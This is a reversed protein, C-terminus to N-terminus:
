DLKLSRRLIRIRQRAQFDQKDSRGQDLAVFKEYSELAEPKKGLKDFCTARVFWFFHPPAERKLLLDQAKLAAEYNEALYFASALDRLADLHEPQLRLAEVLERQAGAFDRKELHLRGLKARAAANHPQAALIGAIAQAAADFKKQRLYIEARLELSELSPTGGADLRDLAAVARDDQQLESFTRALQLRTVADGPQAVLYAELEGAAPGPKQQGLLSQALGLRAHAADPRLELAARFSKEAEAHSGSNLLARGLALHYEPKTSDARLAVRYEAIAESVRGAKELATGFLFRPQAQGELLEAARGLAAAAAQPTGHELLILGLNMHAAAMKPDLEAARAYHTKADDWKELGTAAYGLQFHAYADDPKSAIYKRLMDAAAAFDKRALAEDAQHLLAQQPDPAPESRAPV